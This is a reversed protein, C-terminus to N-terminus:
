SEEHIDMHINMIKMQGPIEGSEPKWTKRYKVLTAKSLGTQAATESYSNGSDLLKMAAEIKWDPIAPRGEKYGPKTKAIAKGEQTRSVILSREFEAFSLFINIILNGIEDHRDMMWDKGFSLIKIRVDRDTLEKILTSGESVSRAFRDIKTVVLTDGAKLTRVLQDLNPRKTTKGTYVDTFINEVRVGADKLQRTQAALSNGDKEQGVTSVRSYGFVTPRRDPVLLLAHDLQLAPTDGYVDSLDPKKKFEEVIDIKEFQPSSILNRLEKKDFVKMYPKGDPMCIVYRDMCGEPAKRVSWVDNKM